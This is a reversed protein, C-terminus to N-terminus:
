KIGDLRHKVIYFKEKWIEKILIDGDDDLIFCCLLLLWNRIVVM